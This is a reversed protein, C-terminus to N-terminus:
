NTDATLKLSGRRPIPDRVQCFDVRTYTTQYVPLLRALWGLKRAAKLKVLLLQLDKPSRQLLENCRNIGEVYAGRKAYEDFTPYRAM